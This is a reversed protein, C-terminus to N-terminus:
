TGRFRRIGNKTRSRCQRARKIYRSVLLGEAEVGKRRNARAEERQMKEEAYKTCEAHCGIHRDVCDKCTSKDM